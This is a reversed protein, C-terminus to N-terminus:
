QLGAVIAMKRKEWCVVSVCEKRLVKTYITGKKGKSAVGLEKSPQSRTM